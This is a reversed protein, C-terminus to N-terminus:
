NLCDAALRLQFLTHLFNTSTNGPRERGLVHVSAPLCAPLYLLAPMSCHAAPFADFVSPRSPRAAFRLQERIPHPHNVFGHM